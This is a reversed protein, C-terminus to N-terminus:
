MYAHVHLDIICPLSCMWITCTYTCLMQCQALFKRLTIQVQPGHVTFLHVHMYMYKLCFQIHRCSAVTTVYQTYCLCCQCWMCQTVCWIKKLVIYTCHWLLKEREEGIEREGLGSCPPTKVLEVADVNLHQRHHGLLDEGNQLRKALLRFVEHKLTSLDLQTGGTADENSHIGTCLRTGGSEREEHM